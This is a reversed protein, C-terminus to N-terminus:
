DFINLLYADIERQPVNYFNRGDSHLDRALETGVFRWHWPEFVYYANGEPYSLTFGYKHANQLLWQYAATTDFGELQGNLGLTLFDITTGLQHESYGQDASFANAGSGYVVKYGAKLSSQEGFSRYASAIYLAVGDDSANNLLDQLFPWVDRHIQHVAGATYVYTEPITKLTDPVYHENLFYVKSYKQLLEPDLKSLKELDDVTGTIEGVQDALSGVREKEAVLASELNFNENESEMLSLETLRLAQELEAVRANLFETSTTHYYWLYGLSAILIVIVAALAGNSLIENSKNKVLIIKGYPFIHKVDPKHHLRQSNPTPHLAVRM